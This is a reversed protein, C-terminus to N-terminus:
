GLPRDLTAWKHLPGKARMRLVVGSTIKDWNGRIRPEREKRDADMSMKLSEWHAVEDDIFELFLAKRRGHDLGGQKIAAYREIHFEAWQSGEEKLKNKEYDYRWAYMQPTITLKDTARRGRMMKWSAALGEMLERERRAAGSGSHLEETRREEIENETPPISNFQKLLGKRDFPQLKGDLVKSEDKIDLKKVMAQFENFDIVNNHDSDMSKFVESARNNVQKHMTEVLIQKWISVRGRQATTQLRVLSNASSSGLENNAVVELACTVDEEFGHVGNDDDDLVPLEFGCVRRDLRNAITAAALAPRTKGAHNIFQMPAGTSPDRQEHWVEDIYRTGGDEIWVILKCLSPLNFKFASYTNGGGASSSGEEDMEVRDVRGEAPCDTSDHTWHFPLLGNRGIPFGSQSNFNDTVIVELERAWAPPAPPELRLQASAPKSQRAGYKAYVNILFVSDTAFLSAAAMGDLKCRMMDSNHNDAETPARRTWRHAPAEGSLGFEIWFADCGGNPILASCPPLRWELEIMTGDRALRHITVDSPSYLEPTLSVTVPESRRTHYKALVEVRLSMADYLDTLTMGNLHMHVQESGDDPAQKTWVGKLEGSGAAAFLKIEFDRCAFEVPMNLPPEPILWEFDITGDAAVGRIKADRPPNADFNFSSELVIVNSKVGHGTTFPNHTDVCVNAGFLRDIESGKLTFHYRGGQFAFVGSEQKADPGRLEIQHETTLHVTNSLAVSTESDSRQQLKEESSWFRLVVHTVRDAADPPYWALEADATQSDRHVLVLNAPQPEIIRLDPSSAEGQRSVAFVTIRCERQAVARKKLLVHVMTNDRKRTGKGKGKGEGNGDASWWATEPNASAAIHRIKRIFVDGGREREKPWSVELRYHCQKSEDAVDFRSNPPAWAIEMAGSAHRQVFVLSSPALQRPRVLHCVNSCATSGHGNDATVRVETGSRSDILTRPLTAHVMGSREDLRAAGRADDVNHCEYEDGEAHFDDDYEEDGDGNAGSNSTIKNDKNRDTRAGLVVKRVLTNAPEGRPWFSLEYTTDSATHPWSVDGIGSADVAGEITFPEPPQPAAPNIPTLVLATSKRTGHGNDAIVFVETGDHPDILASPLVYSVETKDVVTQFCKRCSQRPKGHECAESEITDTVFCLICKEKPLSHECVESETSHMRRSPPSLCMTTSVDDEAIARHAHTAKSSFVVEYTCGRAQKWKLCADGVGDHTYRATSGEFPRWNDAVTLEFEAPRKPELLLKNSESRGQDNSAVLVKSLIYAPPSTKDHETSTHKISLYRQYFGRM